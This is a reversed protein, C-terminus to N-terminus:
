IEKGEKGQRGKKTIFYFKGNATGDWKTSETRGKETKKPDNKEEREKNGDDGGGDEVGGSLVELFLFPVVQHTVHTPQAL